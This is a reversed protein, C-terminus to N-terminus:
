KLMAKVIGIINDLENDDLKKLDNILENLKAPNKSEEDFLEAPTIALYECIYFLKELSPKSKCTEINNIYGENQGISLSMDRASVGKKQRLKAIRLALKEITM